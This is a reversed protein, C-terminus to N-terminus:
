NNSSPLRLLLISRTDSKFIPEALGGAKVSSHNAERTKVPGFCCQLRLHLTYQRWEDRGWLPLNYKRIRLVKLRPLTQTFSNPCNKSLDEGPKYYARAPAMEKWGCSLCKYMWNAEAERQM